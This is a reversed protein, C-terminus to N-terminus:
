ISTARGRSTSAPSCVPRGRPAELPRRPAPRHQGRGGRARRRAGGRLGRARARGHHGGRRRARRPRARRRRGAVTAAPVDYREALPLIADLAPDGTSSLGAAHTLAAVAVGRRACADRAGLLDLPRGRLAARGGLTAGRVVVARALARAPGGHVLVARAPGRRLDRAVDIAADGEFAIRLLRPSAADVSLVRAIAGGAVRVREGALLRPPAPREETRQRWDGRGFLVARWRTSEGGEHALLRLEFADRGRAPGEALRAPHGRRERRASRRPAPDLPARRRSLRRLTGREPDIWLLREREPKERPWAAAAIMPADGRRGGPSGRDEVRRASSSACSAIPSSTPRSSRRATPTPCRTPTCGRTWRAPTSPWCSSARRRSSPPGSGRSTISRRRPSATPAGTRTRTSAPTPPSTSSSAQRKAAGDRGRPAEDTSVPGLVNVAFARELDECPTDLLAALPVPGLTSANHVLLDIAGPSRRPRGPSATRRKRTASTPRFRSPSAGERVSPARPPKSRPRTARWSCSGRAGRRRHAGRPVPRPGELGRHHAGDQERSGHTAEKSECSAGRAARANAPTVISQLAAIAESHALGDRRVEPAVDPLEALRPPERLLLHRLERVHRAGRPRVQLRALGVRREGDQVADGVANWTVSSSSTAVGRGPM